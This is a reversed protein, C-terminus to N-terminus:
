WKEHCFPIDHNRAYQEFFGPDDVRFQEFHKRVEKFFRERIKRLNVATISFEKALEEDSRQSEKALEEDSLEVGAKKANAKCQAKTPKKAEECIAKIVLKTDAKWPHRTLALRVAENQLYEVWEVDANSSSGEDDVVEDAISARGEDSADAILESREKNRRKCYDKIAHDILLSLFVRLRGRESEYTGQLKKHLKEFIAAIADDKDVDDVMPKGAAGNVSRSSNNIANFKNTIPAYYLKCFREWEEGRALKEVLTLSTTEFGYKDKNGM